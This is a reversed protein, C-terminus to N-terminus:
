QYCAPMFIHRGSGVSLLAERGAMTNQQRRENDQVACCVAAAAASLM